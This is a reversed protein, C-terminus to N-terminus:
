TGASPERGAGGLRWYLAIMPLLLLIMLVVIAAAQGTYGNRWSDWVVVSLTMNNKSVLTAPITLDRFALLALWLWAYLLAPRILPLTVRRLVAFLSAGAVQAAEELESQIQILAANAIRTAFSLQVLAVVIVLLAMSGYLDLPARLYFLTLMVAGFGFVIRPVSQPLFAVFDYLLRLRSRTRLVVWSLAVAFAVALTPALVMLLATHRAGTQVLPWNANRFNNLSVQGLAQGSPLQVFPLLATWVLMALPLVINLTLYAAVFAWALVAWRGLHAQKPRYSKGTIVQYNRARVLVRSYLWTLLVGVGVMFSGFAATLGYAPLGEHPTVQTYLFTSFVYIRNSLGIILPVDFTAISIALVFITAGLLGPLALPLTVRRLTTLLGAGSVQAAEELSADMARLSACSMVFIVAALSLGEVWGMGPLTLLNIPLETVGLTENAWRTLLGARPHLLLIWGMANMFGPILVGLTMATYVVTKGPLDTREVLWAIPLGFVVAWFVTNVAFVATNLITGSVAPNAYLDVYHRLTFGRDVASEQVSIAAVTALLVLILAAPVTALAVM